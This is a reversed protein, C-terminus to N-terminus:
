WRVPRRARSRYYVCGVLFLVSLSLCILSIVNAFAVRCTRRHPPFFARTKRDRRTWTPFGKSSRRRAQEAEFGVMGWKLALERRPAGGGHKLREM